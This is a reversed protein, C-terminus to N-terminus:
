HENKENIQKQTARWLDEIELSVLDWDFADENKRLEYIHCPELWTDLKLSLLARTTRSWGKETRKISKASLQRTIWSCRPRHDSKKEQSPFERWLLSFVNQQSFALLYLKRFDVYCGKDFCNFHWPVIAHPSSVDLDVFGDKIRRRM